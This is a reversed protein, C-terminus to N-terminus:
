CSTTREHSLCCPCNRVIDNTEIVEVKDVLSIIKSPDGADFPTKQLILIAPLEDCGVDDENPLTGLLTISKLVSDTPRPNDDPHTTSSLVSYDELRSKPHSRLPFTQPVASWRAPIVFQQSLIRAASFGLESDCCLTDLLLPEGSHQSSQYVGATGPV